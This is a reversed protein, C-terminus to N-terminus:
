KTQVRANSTDAAGLSKKNTNKTQAKPSLASTSV